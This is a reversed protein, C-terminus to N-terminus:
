FIIVPFNVELFPLSQVSTEGMRLTFSSAHRALKSRAIAGRAPESASLRQIDKM